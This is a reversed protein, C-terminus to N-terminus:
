FPYKGLLVIAAFAAAGDDSVTSGVLQEVVIEGQFEMRGALTGTGTGIVTAASTGVADPATANHWTVACTISHALDGALVTHTTGTAGGINVTDKKWQRATVSPAPSGSATGDAVTLVQGVEPTGSITPSATVSPATGAGSANDTITNTGTNGNSNIFLALRSGAPITCSAPVTITFTKNGPDAVWGSTATSNAILTNTTGDNAMRLGVFAWPQSSGLTARPNWTDAAGEIKYQAWSTRSQGQQTANIQTMAAGASKDLLSSVTPSNGACGCALVTDGTSGATLTATAPSTNGANNVGASSAAAGTAVHTFAIMAIEMAVSNTAVVTIVDGANLQVSVDCRIIRAQETTSQSATVENTYANAM